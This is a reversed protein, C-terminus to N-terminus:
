LDVVEDAAATGYSLRLYGKEDSRPMLARAKRMLLMQKESISAGRAIGLFSFMVHVVRLPACLGSIGTDLHRFCEEDLTDHINVRITLSQLLSAEPVTSLVDLASNIGTGAGGFIDLSTLAPLDDLTFAPTVESANLRLAHISSQAERMLTIVTPSTKCYMAFDELSSFDLPCCPHLLWAPDPPVPYGFFQLTTPKLRATNSPFVNALPPLDSIEMFSLSVVDLATTRQQFLAHFSAMDLKLACLRVVRISPLAIISAALSLVSIDHPTDNDLDTIGYLAFTELNTFRVATLLMTIDGDPDTDINIDRIYRILHPSELLILRLNRARRSAESRGSIFSTSLAVRRFVHRQASSTFVPSILASACLDSRSSSAPLFSCVLDCIEQIELAGPTM